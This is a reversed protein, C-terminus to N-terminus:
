KLCAFSRSRKRSPINMGTNYFWANEARHSSVGFYLGEKKVATKLEGIVDIKPGMKMSNWPNFTSNYMSFGDHHEAVPVVYRAGSEKFLKAWEQAHFKEAKFMPIFDKYGFTDV